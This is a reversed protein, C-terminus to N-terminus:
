EFVGVTRLEAAGYDPTPNVHAHWTEFTARAAALSPARWTLMVVGGLRIECDQPHEKM